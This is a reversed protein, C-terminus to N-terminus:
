YLRGISQINLISMVVKGSMNHKWVPPLECKRQNGTIPATALEVYTLLIIISMLKKM